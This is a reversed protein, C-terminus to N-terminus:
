LVEDFFEKSTLYNFDILSIPQQLTNRLVNFDDKSFTAPDSPLEPNSCTGM